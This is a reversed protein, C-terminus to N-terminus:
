TYVYIHDPDSEKFYLKNVNITTQEESGYDENGYDESENDNEKEKDEDKQEEIPAEHTYSREFEWVLKGTQTSYFLYRSNESYQYMDIM